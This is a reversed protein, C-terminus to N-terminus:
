GRGGSRRSRGGGTREGLRLEVVSIEWSDARGSIGSPTRRSPLSSTMVRPLGAASRGQAPGSRGAIAPRSRRRRGNPCRTRPVSDLHDGTTAFGARSATSLRAEPPHEPQFPDLPSTLSWIGPGPRRPASRIRPRDSRVALITRSRLIPRRPRRPRRSFSSRFQGPPIIKENGGFVPCPSRGGSVSGQGVSRAGHAMSGPRQGDELLGRHGAMGFGGEGGDLVRDVDDGQDAFVQGHM